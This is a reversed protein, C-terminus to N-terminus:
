RIRKAHLPLLSTDRWKLYELAIAYSVLPVPTGTTMYKEISELELGPIRSRDKFKRKQSHEIEEEYLPLRLGVQAFVRLNAEREVIATIISLMCRVLHFEPAVIVLRRWSMQQAYEVMAVAETLTTLLLGTFPVLSIGAKTVRLKELENLWVEAGPYGPRSPGRNDIICIKGVACSHFLVTGKELSSRQNTPTETPLFLPCNGGIPLIDTLVITTFNQRDRETQTTFTSESVLRRETSHKQKVVLFM